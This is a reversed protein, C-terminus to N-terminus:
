TGENKIKKELENVRNALEALLVKINNLEEEIL